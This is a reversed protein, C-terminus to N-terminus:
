CTLIFSPATDAGRTYITQGNLVVEAIDPAQGAPRPLDALAAAEIAESASLGAARLYLKLEGNPLTVLTANVAAPAQTAPASPPPAVPEAPALGYSQAAQWRAAQPANLVTTWPAAAVPKATDGAAILQATAPSTNAAQPQALGQDARAPRANALEGHRDGGYALSEGLSHAEAPLAADATALGLTEARNFVGQWFAEDPRSPLPSASSASLTGLSADFLGSTTATLASM